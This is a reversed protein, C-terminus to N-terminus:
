AVAKEDKPARASKAKESSATDSPSASESAGAAASDGGAPKGGGNSAYGDAYWGGGKLTFYTQSILRKIRRSRCRPCSKLPEETIRQEVEFESECAACAYEYTPM